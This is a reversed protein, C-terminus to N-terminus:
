RNDGTRPQITPVSVQFIPFSSEEPPASLPVLVAPKASQDFLVLDVTVAMHPYQYTFAM